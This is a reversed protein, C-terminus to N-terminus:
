KCQLRRRVLDRVRAACVLVPAGLAPHRHGHRAYPKRPLGPPALTPCPALVCGESNLSVACLWGIGTHSSSVGQNDGKGRGGPSAM